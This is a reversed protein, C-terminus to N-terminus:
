FVVIKWIILQSIVGYIILMGIALWQWKRNSNM